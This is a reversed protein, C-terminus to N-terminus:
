SSFFHDDPDDHEADHYNATIRSRGSPTMGFESAYRVMDSMAKSAISVLPNHIPNGNTTRIILGHMTQDRRAMEALAREALIWRGYAQCYAALATRDIATIIGAALLRPAVRLWEEQAEATLEPPPNPILQALKPEARNIRRKGPNGTVLKLHTPKPRRGKM